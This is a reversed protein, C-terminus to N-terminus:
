HDAYRAFKSSKSCSALANAGSIALREENSGVAKKLIKILRKIGGYKRVTRRNQALSSLIEWYKGNKAANAITDAALCRIDEESDRLLEVLPRMGDMEAIAARIGVNQSVQHLIMLAGIKCKVSETELLNVLTELGGVDRIASQNSENSLDFDRLICIAIITATENGCRLYKVLKQIQYYEAPLDLSILQL